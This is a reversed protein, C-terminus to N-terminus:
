AFRRADLRRAGPLLERAWGEAWPEAFIAAALVVCNAYLYDRKRGRRIPPPVEEHREHKRSFAGRCKRGAARKNGAPAGRRGKGWGKPMPKGLFPKM